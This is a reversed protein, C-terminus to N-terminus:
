YRDYVRPPHPFRRTVMAGVLWCVAIILLDIM